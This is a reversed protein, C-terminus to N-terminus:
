QWRAPRFSCASFRSGPSSSRSMHAATTRPSFISPSQASHPVTMCAGIIHWASGRRMGGGAATASTGIRAASSGLWRTFGADESM